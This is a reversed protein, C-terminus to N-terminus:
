FLRLKKDDKSEVLGEEKIEFFVERNEPLSRHKKLIAKRKAHGIDQLEILCKSGYKLIDGGVMHVKNKDDFSAYVQNTVIVPVNKDRAIRILNAVQGALAKNTEQFDEKRSFETRYQMSITDVIVLGIKPNIMEPLKEMIKKQEEFNMPKLFLMKDLMKKVDRSQCLQRFREVSFGGETDIYIVKKNKAVDIACLMCVTTKGTGAPGYITTVADIEYGGDLLKDMVPSGTPIKNDM